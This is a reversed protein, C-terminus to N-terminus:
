KIWKINYEYMHKGRNEIHANAKELQIKIANRMQTTTSCAEGTYEYFM